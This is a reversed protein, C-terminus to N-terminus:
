ATVGVPGPVGTRRPPESLGIGGVEPTVAALRATVDQPLARLVAVRNSLLYRGSASPLRLGHRARDEVDTFEPLEAPLEESQEESLWPNSM